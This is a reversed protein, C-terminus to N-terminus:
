QIPRKEIQLWAVSQRFWTKLNTNLHSAKAPKEEVRELAFCALAYGYVAEPMYGLRQM